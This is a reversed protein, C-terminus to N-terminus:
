DNLLRKILALAQAEKQMEFPATNWLKASDMCFSNTGVKCNSTDKWIKISSPRLTRDTTPVFLNNPILQFPYNPVNMSKWAEILKIEGSLQNVSPLNHKTLLSCSTVHDELTVGELMRLMKNQAVQVSKLNQNVPDAQSTRVQSLFQLGYRLKSM